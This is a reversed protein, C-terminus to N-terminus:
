AAHHSLGSFRLILFHNNIEDYTAYHQLFNNGATDQLNYGGSDWVSETSTQAKWANKIKPYYIRYSESEQFNSNLVTSKLHIFKMDQLSRSEESHQALQRLRYHKQNTNSLRRTRIKTLVNATM